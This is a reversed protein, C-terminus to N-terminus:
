VRRRYARVALPVFIILLVAMWGLTWLVDSGAAGGTFLSRIASVLHTMPNVKVFAQLWGPMTGTQVFVNSGFSLPMVILMSIGTVAGSTRAKMGIFVSVWVFSLAFGIALAIGGVVDGISTHFRFGMIMGVGVTVLLLIAYRVFDALVAGVLPASRGIPLSRFRDFVGKEIDSNLNAGLSIGAMAITQGLIGPLLFQLYDSQSGGAIAGGFIYTFLGLFIVPQITVDVLAEPTRMTKILSRKALVLCHGVFRVVAPRSAGATPRQDTPQPALATITSM